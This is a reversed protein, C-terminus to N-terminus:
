TPQELKGAHCIIFASPMESRSPQKETPMLQLACISPSVQFRPMFNIPELYKELSTLRSTYSGRQKFPDTSPELSGYLHTMSIVGRRVGVEGKAVGLIRGAESQIDILSNEAIGDEQM